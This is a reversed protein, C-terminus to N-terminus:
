RLPSSAIHKPLAKIADFEDAENLTRLTKRVWCGKVGKLM